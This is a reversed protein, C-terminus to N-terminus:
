DFKEDDIHLRLWERARPQQHWIAHILGMVGVVATLLALVVWHSHNLAYVAIMMAVISVWTFLRQARKTRSRTVAVHWWERRDRAAVNRLEPISKLRWYWTM